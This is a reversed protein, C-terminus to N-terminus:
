KVRVCLSISFFIEVGLMQRILQKLCVDAM